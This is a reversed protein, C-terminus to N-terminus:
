PCMTNKMCRKQLFYAVASFQKVDEPDAAKWSGAPLEKQPEQLNTVGPVKFQRIEPYHANEIERAYVVSHLALQHEMNSQGSCLWVEGILINRLLITNKGTIQMEYPGGAKEPALLVAWNGGPATTTKYKKGKFLVTVNEGATAWGWIKIKTDRQLVMSDRIIRPLQVQAVGWWSKLIFLLVCSVKKM